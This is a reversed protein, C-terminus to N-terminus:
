CDGLNASNEGCGEAASGFVNQGGRVQASFFPLSLKLLEHHFIDFGGYIVVRLDTRYPFQIEDDQEMEPSSNQESGESRFEKSESNQRQRSLEEKLKSIERQLSAIEHRYEKNERTLQRQSKESEEISRLLADIDPIEDTTEHDNSEHDITEDDSPASPIFQKVSNKDAPPAEVVDEPFYNLKEASYSYHEMSVVSDLTALIVAFDRARRESYGSDRFAKMYSKRLYLGREVAHGSYRALAASVPLSKM